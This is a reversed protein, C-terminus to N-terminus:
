PQPYNVLGPISYNEDVRATLAEVFANAFDQVFGLANPQVICTKGGGIQFAFGDRDKSITITTFRIVGDPLALGLRYVLRNASDLSMVRSPLTHAFENSEVVACAIASEGCSLFRQMDAYVEDAMKGCQQQYQEFATQKERVYGAFEGYNM